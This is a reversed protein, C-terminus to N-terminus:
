VHTIFSKSSDFLSMGKFGLRFVNYMRAYMYTSRTEFPAAFKWVSITETTRRRRYHFFYYHSPENFHFNVNEIANPRHQPPRHHRRFLNHLDHESCPRGITSLQFDYRILRSSSSRQLELPLNFLSENEQRSNRMISINWFTPSFASSSVDPGLLDSLVRWSEICTYETNNVVANDCGLM